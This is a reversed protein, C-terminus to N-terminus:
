RPTVRRPRRAAAAKAQLQDVILQVTNAIVDPIRELPLGYRDHMPWSADAGALSLLM